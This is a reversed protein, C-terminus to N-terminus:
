WRQEPRDLVEKLLVAQRVGGPHKLIRRLEEAPNGGLVFAAQRQATAQQAQTRVRQLEAEAEAARKEAAELERQKEALEDRYDGVVEGLLVEELAERRGAQPLRERRSDTYERRQARVARQQQAAASQRRQAARRLFDELDGSM